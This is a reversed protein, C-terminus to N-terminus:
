HKYNKIGTFVMAINYKDALAIMKEDNISGGPQIITSIRGQVAAYICDITPLTNDSAM